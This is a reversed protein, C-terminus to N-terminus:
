IRKGLHVLLMNVLLSFTLFFFFFFFFISLINFFRMKPFNRWFNWLNLGMQQFLLGTWRNEVKFFNQFFFGSELFFPSVKEFKTTFYWSLVQFIALSSVKFIKVFQSFFTLNQTTIELLDLDVKKKSLYAKFIQFFFFNFFILKPACRKNNVNKSLMM